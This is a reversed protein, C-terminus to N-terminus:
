KGSIERVKNRKLDSLEKRVEILKNRTAEHAMAEKRHKMAWLLM